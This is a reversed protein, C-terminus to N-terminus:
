LDDNSRVVLQPVASRMENITSVLWAKYEGLTYTLGGCATKMHIITKLANELSSCYAVEEWVHEKEGTKKRTKADTKEVVRKCWVTYNYEDVEVIYDEDIVIKANAPSRLNLDTTKM